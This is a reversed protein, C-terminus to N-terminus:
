LYYKGASGCGGAFEMMVVHSVLNGDSVSGSFTLEVKM